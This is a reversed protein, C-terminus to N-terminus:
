RPVLDTVVARLVSGILFIVVLVPSVRYWMDVQRGSVSFLALVPELPRPAAM